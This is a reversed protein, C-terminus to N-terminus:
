TTGTECKPESHVFFQSSRQVTCFLIQILDGEERTWGGEDIAAIMAVSSVTHSMKHRSKRLAVREWGAASLECTCLSRAKWFCGCIKRLLLICLPFLL